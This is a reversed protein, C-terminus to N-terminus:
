QQCEKGAAASTPRENLIVMQKRSSQRNKKYVFVIYRCRLVAVQLLHAATIEFIDPDASIFAFINESVVSRSM